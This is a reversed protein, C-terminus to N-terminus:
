IIKEPNLLFNISRLVGVDKEVALEFAAPLPSKSDISRTLKQKRIIIRSRFKGNQKKLAFYLNLHLILIWSEFHYNMKVNVKYFQSLFASDAFVANRMEEVAFSLIKLFVAFTNM